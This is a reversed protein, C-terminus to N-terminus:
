AGAHPGPAKRVGRFVPGMMVNGLVTKWPLLADAQFM